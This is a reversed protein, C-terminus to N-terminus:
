YLSKEGKPRTNWRKHIWMWQGPYQRVYKEVADSVKQTFSRVTEDTNDCETFAIPHEFHVVYKQKEANWVAFVPMVIANTNLALRAISTTTSAQTGFFDVFVGEREQVNLDAMVGLMEGNELLRIMVRASKTKDITKGGFSTRLSDVYAEVKPNDIRRVLQHMPYGFALPLLNFVEWSGFHGTFLLMGRGQAHAQEFIERGDLEVLNQIDDHTFKRFHSVLGLQRGLSRLCGRLIDSKETDSLDPLAIDLNRHATNKLKPVLSAIVEGLTAGINMSTKLPFKGIFGLVSRVAFYELNTQFTGRRKNSMQLTYESPAVLPLRRHMLRHL